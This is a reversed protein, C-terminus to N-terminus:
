IIPKSLAYSFTFLKLELKFIMKAIVLYKRTSCRPVTHRSRDFRPMGFTFKRFLNGNIKHRKLLDAKLVVYFHHPTVVHSVM